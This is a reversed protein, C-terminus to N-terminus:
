QEQCFGCQPQSCLRLLRSCRPITKTIKVAAIPLSFGPLRKDDEREKQRNTQHPFWLDEALTLPLQPDVADTPSQM